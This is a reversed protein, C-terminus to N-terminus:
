PASMCHVVKCSRFCSSSSRVTGPVCYASLFPSIELPLFAFQVVVTHSREEKKYPRRM